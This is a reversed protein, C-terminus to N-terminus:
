DHKDLLKLYIDFPKLSIYWMFIFFILTQSMFKSLHVDFFALLKGGKSNFTTLYKM